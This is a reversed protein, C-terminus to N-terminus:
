KRIKHSSECTAIFCNKDLHSTNKNNNPCVNGMNKPNRPPFPIAVLKPINNNNFQSIPKIQKMKAIASIAIVLITESPDIEAATKNGIRVINM